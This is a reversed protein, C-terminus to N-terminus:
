DDELGGYVINQTSLYPIKIKDIKEFKPQRVEVRKAGANKIKSILEDPNIDRGIKKNQWKIYDEIAASIDKQIISAKSFDSKNIFYTIDIQYAKTEPANVQVNDTLPRKDKDMLYNKLAFILSEEPIAGNQMVFYIHVTGPSKEIKVDDIRPDFKKIWYRYSDETGTTSYSSPALFIREKLSDEEEKDIGGSSKTINSIRNVWPLPDVLITITDIPIDNGIIGPTTCAMAVDAFLEGSKIIGNEITEFYLEEKTTARIGKPIEVDFNQLVELFFRVTVTASKTNDDQTVGLLIGLNKLANGYSYKLLNQKGTRDIYQLEQYFMLACAYLIARNPNALFLTQKEGKIESLKEEYNKVLEKVIDDITLNDIFSVEPLDQVNVKIM